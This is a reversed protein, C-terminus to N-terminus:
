LGFEFLIKIGSLADEYSFTAVIPGEMISKDIEGVNSDKAAIGILTKKAVKMEANKERLKKRLHSIGVVDLGRYNAFVISKSRSFKDILDALVEEKKQRTVAM